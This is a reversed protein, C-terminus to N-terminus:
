FPLVICNEKDDSCPSSLCDKDVHSDLFSLLKPHRSNIIPMVNYEIKQVINKHQLINRKRKFDEFCSNVVKVTLNITSSPHVLHGRNVFEILQRGLRTLVAYPSRIAAYPSNVPNPAM